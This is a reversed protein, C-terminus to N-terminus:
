KMYKLYMQAALNGQDASKKWWEVAKKPDKEVGKGEHYCEGLNCQAKANGQNAAKEWWDVAKKMDRETGEGKFWHMGLNCQANANGQEAARTYWRVAEAFDQSIGQGRCYAVGLAYQADADGGEAKRLLEQSFFIKEEPLRIASAEAPPSILITKPQSDPFYIQWARDDEGTVLWPHTLFTPQSHVQNNELIKYLKRNGSYDLWYIKIKKGSQNEFRITTPIHAHLSHTAKELSDKSDAGEGPKPGSAVNKAGEVKSEERPKKWPRWVGDSWWYCDMSHTIRNYRVVNASDKTVYGFPTSYPTPWVFWLFLVTSASIFGVLFKKNM